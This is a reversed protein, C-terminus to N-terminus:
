NVDNDSRKFVLIDPSTYVREFYKYLRGQIDPDEYINEWVTDGDQMIIWRAHKEPEILSEEWYPKNGIYIINEMLIGSNIVSLTRAFDDILVLGGDYADALFTQADTVSAASLGFRADDLSLINERGAAFLYKQYVFSSLVIFILLYAVTKLLFNGAGVLKSKYHRIEFLKPIVYILYSFFFAAAPIMMVGYRVNFLRWEFEVPTVDPLFIVSQGMFMTVTYFIFPTFLLLTIFYRIKIRRDLLFVIVGIISLAAIISGINAISTATYYLYSLYLDGYTPLEGRALWGSQQSKASFPSSTFYLPDGLILYGWLMWFLIGVFALTSFLILLGQMKDLKELVATLNKQRILRKWNIKGAHYIILIAAQIIVLFWGDYRSLTACFSFFAAVILFTENEFKLYKIFYYISLSFFALLPLETMATTQMYLINPNLAFVLFAIFAAQKHRLVIYTTKYIFLCAVIYSIGSVIAGAIGSQWLSNFFTFPVLMLHPLPLWIGGLQALGPTISHTIRKAINLHSEADGYLLMHDSFYSHVSAAIALVLSIGIILHNDNIKNKM